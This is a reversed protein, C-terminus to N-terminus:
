SKSNDHAGPGPAGSVGFGRGRPLLLGKPFSAQSVGFRPSSPLKQQRKAHRLSWCFLLKQECFGAHGGGGCTGARSGGRAVGSGEGTGARAGGRAVEQAGGQVGAREGGARAGGGVM